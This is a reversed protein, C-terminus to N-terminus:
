NWKYTTGTRTYQNSKSKIQNIHHTQPYDIYFSGLAFQIFRPYSVSSNWVFSRVCACWVMCDVSRRLNIYLNHLDQKPVMKETMKGCLQILNAKLDNNWLIREVLTCLFIEKYM